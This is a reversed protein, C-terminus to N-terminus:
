QMYEKIVVGPNRQRQDCETEPAKLPSFEGQAIFYKVLWM